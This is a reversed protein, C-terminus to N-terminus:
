FNNKMHSAIRQFRDDIQVRYKDSLKNYTNQLKEFELIANNRDQMRIYSEAKDLLKMAYNLDLQNCLEFSEDYVQKKIYNNASEYSLKIESYILAAKDYDDTKLYDISDNILVKIYSIRKKSGFGNFRSNVFNRIKDIIDFNVIFYFLLLLVLLIIMIGQGELKINSIADIGFIAFGTTSQITNINKEILVTDTNQFEDLVITGNIYYSILTTDSPYEILPDDKLITYEKNLLQLYKASQTITKPIVEVYSMTKSNAIAYKDESKAFQIDKTVVTVSSIRGDLYYLDVNRVRTSIIISSQTLKTSELFLRKDFKLNKIAVYEDILSKLDDDHVYKVFTKSDTIKINIPTNSKMTEIVTTLNKQAAALGAEDLDRRYALDHVDKDLRGVRDLIQNLNSKINLLDAVVSEDGSLKNMNDLALNISDSNQNTSQLVIAVNGDSVVFRREDSYARNNDSDMCEIKWKYAGYDIDTLEFTYITNSALNDGSDKLVYWSSNASTVYLSCTSVSNDIFKFKLAIADKSLIADNDVLLEIKPPIFDAYTMNLYITQDANLNTRYNYDAYNEKFLSIIKSGEVLRLTIVGSTDTNQVVNGIDITVNPLRVSTKNDSVIITLKYSNKVTIDAYSSYNNGVGDSVTLNVRYTGAITYNKYAGVGTFKTGDHMTWKYTYPAIGRSATANFTIIEGAIITNKSTSIDASLSNTTEYTANRIITQNKYKMVGSILYRGTKNTYPLGQTKPYTDNVFAPTMFCQVWGTSIPCITISVNSNNTADIIYQGFEGLDFVSKSVSIDFFPVDFTINSSSNSSNNSGNNSGNNSNNSNNSTNFGSNSGNLTLYVSSNLIGFNNMKDVCTIIYDFRLLSNNNSNSHNSINIPVLINSISPAIELLTDYSYNAYYNFLYNYSNTTLENFSGNSANHMLIVSCNNLSLDTVSFNLLINNDYATILTNILQNNLTINSQNYYLKNTNIRNLTIQSSATDVLVFKHNNLTIQNLIWLTEDSVLATPNGVIFTNIDATNNLEGSIILTNNTTNIDYICKLNELYLNNELGQPITQNVLIIENLDRTSGTATYTPEGIMDIMSQNIAGYNNNSYDNSNVVYKSINDTSLICTYDVIVSSNIITTSNTSNDFNIIYNNNLNLESINLTYSIVSLPMNTNNSLLTQANANRLNMIMSFSFLGIILVFFIGIGLILSKNTKM